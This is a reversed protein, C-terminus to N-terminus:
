ISDTFTGEAKAFCWIGAVAVVLTIVTAIIAPQVETHETGFLSSRFCEILSAMPNLALLWLLNPPVASRPYIVLSGYMWLNLTYGVIINLDRYKVTAAAILCGIGLALVAMVCLVLPLALINIGLEIRRGSLEYFAIVALLVLLQAVFNLLNMTIQSLPVIMRPFYIKRFLPGSSLLTAAVQTLCNSFFSWVIIGSMYFVLPPLNTTPLRAIRGFVIMFVLSALFPQVLFWLPGLVTQKYVAVFDRKVLLLFLERYAWLDRPHSSQLKDADVVYTPKANNM